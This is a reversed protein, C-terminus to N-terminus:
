YRDDCARALADFGILHLTNKGIDIGITAISLTIKRSMSHEEQEYGTGTEGSPPAPVRSTWGM